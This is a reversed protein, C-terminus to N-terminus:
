PEGDAKGVRKLMPKGICCRSVLLPIRPPSAQAAAQKDTGLRPHTRGLNQKGTGGHCWHWPLEHRSGSTVTGQTRCTAKAQGHTHSRYTAKAQSCLHTRCTAKAQGHTHTCYTAKAQSCLNHPAPQSNPGAATSLDELIRTHSGDDPKRRATHAAGEPM